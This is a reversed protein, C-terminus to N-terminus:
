ALIKISSEQRLQELWKALKAQYTEHWLMERAFRRKVTDAANITRQELVQFLHWSHNIKLPQSIQKPKLHKLTEAISPPLEELTLWGLLGGQAISSLDQSYQTVMTEFSAGSLIKKRVENLTQEIVQDSNQETSILIHRVKVQTLSQDTLASKIDILRILHLGNNTFIPGALEGIKMTAIYPAFADPLEALARGELQNYTVEQGTKETRIPEISTKLSQNKPLNEKLTHALQKAQQLTEPLSDAPTIRVHELTYLLDPRKPHYPHKRLFQEIAQESVEFPPLSQRQLKEILIEEALQKQYQTFSQGSQEINEKLQHLTIRNKTAIDILLAEIEEAQITLGSKQALQLQLTHDILRNLSEQRLQSPSPLESPQYQKKLIQMHNNLQQETIPTNNVIAVIRNIPTAAFLTSGLHSLLLIISCIKITPM